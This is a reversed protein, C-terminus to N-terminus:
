ATANAVMAAEHIVRDHENEHVHESPSIAAYNTTATVGGVLPAHEGHHHQAHTSLVEPSSHTIVSEFSAKVSTKRYYFIQGILAIQLNPLLPLLTLSHISITC